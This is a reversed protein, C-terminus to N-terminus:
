DTQTSKTNKDYNFIFVVKKLSDMRENNLKELEIIIIKLELQSIQNEYELHKIPKSPCVYEFRSNLVTIEGCPPGTIQLKSPALPTKFLKPTDNTSQPNIKLIKSTSPQTDAEVTSSQASPLSLTNFNSSKHPALIGALWDKTIDLFKSKTSPKPVRASQQDTSDIPISTSTSTSTPNTPNITIRSNSMTNYLKPKKSIKSTSPQTDAEVTISELDATSLTSAKLYPSLIRSIWNSSKILKSTSAQTPVATPQQEISDMSSISRCSPNSPIITIIRKSISNSETPLKKDININIKPLKHKVAQKQQDSPQVETQNISQKQQNPQIIEEERDRDTEQALLVPSLGLLPILYALGFLVIVWAIIGIINGTSISYIIRNVATYLVIIATNVIWIYIHIAGGVVTPISHIFLKTYIILLFVAVLLLNNCYISYCGILSVLLSTILFLVCRCTDSVISLIWRTVISIVRIIVLGIISQIINLRFVANVTVILLITVTFLVLDSGSGIIFLGLIKIHTLVLIYMSICFISKDIM